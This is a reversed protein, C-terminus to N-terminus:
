DTVRPQAPSYPTRRIWNKEACAGIEGLDVPEGPATEHGPARLYSAFMYAIYAERPDIDPKAPRPAKMLAAPQNKIIAINTEPTM